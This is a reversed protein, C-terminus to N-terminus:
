QPSHIPIPKRRRQSPAKSDLEADLAVAIRERSRETEWKLRKKELFWAVAGSALAGALAGLFVFAGDWAWEPMLPPETMTDDAAQSGAAL